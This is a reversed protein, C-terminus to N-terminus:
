GPVAALAADLVPDRGAFFDESRLPVDIDPERALREDDKGATEWSVTAVHAVLGATPLEVDVADGFQNPSGGTPEGVFVANTKTELDVVLQMAASFTIRSTLVLLQAARAQRELEALLPGYTTNDGGGNHRLDLVVARPPDKAAISALEEALLGADRTANYGVLVIAGGDLPEVWAPEDRRELYRVGPRRPLRRDADVAEVYEAAPMPELVVETSDDLVFAQSGGEAAGLGELVEAAVLYSPRRARVTWDNDRPILPEVQTALSGVPVGGIATVEAGILEPNAASVVFFGDDLEYLRVPYFHLPDPHRDLTFVGTHGNREGLLAGLRMLARIAEARSAAAAARDAEREFAERTVSRFPDPHRRIVAKAFRSGDV